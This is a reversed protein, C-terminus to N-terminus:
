SVLAPEGVRLVLVAMDDRPAEPAFEVVCPDPLVREETQVNGDLHGPDRAFKQVRAPGPIVAFGVVVLGGLEGVEEPLIERPELRLDRFVHPVGPWM